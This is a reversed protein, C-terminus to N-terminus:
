AVRLVTDAVFAALETTGCLDLVVREEPSHHPLLKTINASGELGLEARVDVNRVEGDVLNRLFIGASDVTSLGTGHWLLLLSLHAEWENSVCVFREIGELRVSGLAPRLGELPHITCSGFRPNEFRAPKRPFGQCRHINLKLRNVRDM